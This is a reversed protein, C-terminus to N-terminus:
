LHNEICATSHKCTHVHTHVCLYMYANLKYPTLVSTRNLHAAEPSQSWQTDESSGTLTETWLEMSAPNSTHVGRLSHNTANEVCDIQVQRGSLVATNM